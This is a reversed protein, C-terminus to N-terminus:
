DKYILLHVEADSIEQIRYNFGQQELEPLLFVPIRKHYVFLAKGLPLTELAELITHMPLPMELQRVDVTVLNGEFSKVIEDWGEAYNKEQENVTEVKNEKRHFYTNVLDAHITEAYFEFGQNGLLHMLPTPEFSNIIKLVKGNYLSKVTQVIESLPDKGADIVPRVDLEIIQEPKIEQMFKPLTNVVTEEADVATNSDIKFGLTQLKNFFDEVKCGGIKAAMAISTRGAIVKRLIPNRLKTFKPSISVIAELADSHEKILTAIKTNANITKM